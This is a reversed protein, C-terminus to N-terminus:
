KPHEHHFVDPGDDVFIVVDDTASVLKSPAVSVVRVFRINRGRM